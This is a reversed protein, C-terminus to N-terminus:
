CTRVGKGAPFTEAGAGILEDFRGLCTEWHHRTEVFRRGNRGLEDRRGPDDWLADLCVAWDDGSAAVLADRGRVLALGELAAPSAVVARGMALAELVKNQVGRAVPLPAVVVRAMALHPRVDAVQGVVRIGPLAGLSRVSAGPNRGVIEFTAEPRRARIAPWAERCFWELGLVNARYDLQGVFVCGSTEATGPTPRFYDLDVGNPITEVPAEPCSRRYLDAEAGTVLVVARASGAARELVRVRRGELRFLAAKPGTAREAYDWWKRSDVDVLDVILRPELGRGLVYPLMASSFCVVADYATEDLWREVLSRLAPSEFLGETLSRGLALSRAARVWRWLRSVPVGEVRRCLKGPVKLADAAAPEDSLYALDVRGLRTLHELLHYSRIRDGKDPPYPVRHVLMLIRRTEAPPDFRDIPMAAPTM